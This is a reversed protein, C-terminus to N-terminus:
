LTIDSTSLPIAIRVTYLNEEAATEILGKQGTVINGVIKMGLGHKPVTEKEPLKSPSQAAASNECTLAFFGNKVHIDLRIYPEAFGSSSAATIANNLINMVLSCLDTDSMPLHEPANARVIECRIGLDEATGLKSNLIIDLMKNGTQVVSRVKKNKGILDDLYAAAPGDSVMGRLTEYHANMDHRLRMVEENQHRMNEYSGLLMDRHEEMAAAEARRRILTCVAEYTATILSALYVSVLLRNSLFDVHGSMLFANLQMVLTDTGLITLDSVLHLPVLTCILPILMMFFLNQRRLFIGGIFLIVIIDILVIWHSFSLINWYPHEADFVPYILLRISDILVAATYTGTLIAPIIRHTQMRMILFLLLLITSFQLLNALPTNRTTDFYHPYFSTGILARVMHLFSALALCVFSTDRMIIAGASLLVGLIFLFLSYFACQFSESILTSEYAYGCYLRVPTPIARITQTEAYEPFSQAITLTKGPYDPPLSILIAESRYWGNMPLTQYGIRRDLEPCDTYLLVDDLWVSYTNEGAGIQLTPSDLDEEMVRSFYFTQGLELGPYGGFGDGILEQRTDEEQIYVTWGKNDFDEPDTFFADELPVLSLDISVDEMPPVYILLVTGFFFCVAVAIVLFPLFFPRKMIPLRRICIFM